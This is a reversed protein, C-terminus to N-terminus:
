QATKLSLSKIAEAQNLLHQEMLKEANEADRKRFVELLERHEEMSKQGVVQQPNYYKFALPNKSDPGEYPIKEPIDPFFTKM